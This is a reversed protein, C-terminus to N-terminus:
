QAVLYDIGTEALQRYHQSTYSEAPTVKPSLRGRAFSLINIAANIDRDLLTGCSACAWSRVSLPMSDNYYGCVHCIKSSPAFRDIQVVDCGFWVGKYILQRFFESWSSDAISKALHHNAQMGKVNLDEIGILRNDRALCTSLQHLFGIRQSAVKEHLRALLLRAKEHNKSGKKRRSLQRNLRKIRKEAQRLYKPSAIKEGHSTTLFSSLGLDIGIEDGAPKPTEIEVDVVISAFYRGTKTKSVTANLVRGEIAKHAVMRIDGVKSLRLWTKTKGEGIVKMVQNTFRISQKGRKAKFKPHGARKKFFIQYAYELDRLASQLVVASSENLWEYGEARKLKTLMASTRNYNLGKGTREYHEEREQLFRNYVWRAQGFANALVTEQENTPYLRFKYAKIVKM